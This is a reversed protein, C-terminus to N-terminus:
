GRTDDGFDTVSGSLGVRCLRDLHAHMIALEDVPGTIEPCVQAITQLYELQPAVSNVCGLAKTLARQLASSPVVTPAAM